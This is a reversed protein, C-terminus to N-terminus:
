KLGKHAKDLIGKLTEKKYSDENLRDIIDFAKQYYKKSVSKTYELGGCKLVALRIEDKTIKGSKAKSKLKPESKFAYILPLTIVGQEFDSLVTKRAKEQSAEYDICDDSLQFIMGVYHGLRSYKGIENKPIDCLVAGAYFAAEFLAATKGSIIRLYSRTTLDYNKHNINQMLEGLCIRSMYNTLLIEVRDRNVTIEAAIQLSLCFLYDGCIVAPQKGFKKQLTISGRRTKANDIVDDHVLTALHLLEIAIALRIADKPIHGQNNMSCALLSKARIMKGGTASLHQTLSRVISPSSLLTSSLGEKVKNFGSSLSVFEKNTTTNNIMTFM